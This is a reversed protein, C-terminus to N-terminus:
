AQSSDDFPPAVPAPDAEHLEGPETTSGGQPPAGVSAKRRRRPLPDRLTIDESVQVVIVTRGPVNGAKRRWVIWEPQPSPEDQGTAPPGSWVARCDKRPTGGSDIDIAQLAPATRVEDWRRDELMVPESAVLRRFRENVRAVTGDADLVCVGLQGMEALVQLVSMEDLPVPLHQKAM